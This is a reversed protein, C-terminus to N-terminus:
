EPTTTDNITLLIARSEGTKGVIHRANLLLKRKGIGPFDREVKFGQIARNHSLIGTLAERLEPIDWQRNGLEHIQRGVTEEPTVHFYEIFACNVSIVKLASDLVVLPEPVTNVISEAFERAKQIASIAQMQETTDTLAVRVTYAADSEGSADPSKGIVEPNAPLSIRVSHVQAHFHSGDERLLELECHQRQDHKLVSSFHRYWRERESEVVFQSFRRALLQKRVVGLMDSATLNIECIMGERNLTLYGIPAFDYLDAYRDRSEEMAIQALRLEDNQMKLEIQHVQLEHLLKHLLEEGEQPNALTIPERLIRSEAETRLADPKAQKDSM